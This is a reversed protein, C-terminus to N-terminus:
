ILDIFGCVMYLWSVSLCGLSGGVAFHLCNTVYEREHSLIVFHGLTAM